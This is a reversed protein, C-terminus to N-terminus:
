DGEVQFAWKVITKDSKLVNSLVIQKSNRQLGLDCFYSGEINLEAGDTRMRWGQGTPLKLLAATKNQLLSVQISPHLHFRIKFNQPASQQSTSFEDHGRIDNGNAYIFIQRNHHYGFNKEYGTHSVSLFSGEETNQFDYSVSPLRRGIGHSNLETQNTDAIIATSHASSSRQALSWNKDTTSVDGCNIIFPTQDVYLEFSAISAHYNSQAEKKIPPLGYDLILETQGANAKGYGSHPASLAAAGDFGCRKLIKDLKFGPKNEAGQFHPLRGDSFKLYLLFSATRDLAQQIFGPLPHQSNEYASRLDSLHELLLAAHEPNRDIIGGDPLQHYDIFTSLKTELSSLHKDDLCETLCALILAKFTYIEKFNLDSKASLNALHFLQQAFSTKIEELEEDNTRGLSLLPHWAYIFHCVRQALNYKNWIEPALKRKDKLDAFEKVWQFLLATSKDQAEPTAIAALDNMWQWNHWKDPNADGSLFNDTFGGAIIKVGNQRDGMRGHTPSFTPYAAETKRLLYGYIGGIKYVRYLLYGFNPPVPLQVTM